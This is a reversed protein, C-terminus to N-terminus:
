WDVPTCLFPTKPNLFVQIGGGSLRAKSATEGTRVNASYAPQSAAPGEIGEVTEGARLNIRWFKNDALENWNYSIATVERYYSKAIRSIEEDPVFGQFQEARGFSKGLATGDAWYNPAYIPKASSKGHARLFMHPARYICVLPTGSFTALIGRTNGASIGQKALWQSATQSRDITRM